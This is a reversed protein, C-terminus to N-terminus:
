KDGFDVVGHVLYSVNFNVSNLNIGKVCKELKNFHLSILAEDLISYNIYLELIEVNQMSRELTENLSIFSVSTLLVKCKSLTNYGLIILMM